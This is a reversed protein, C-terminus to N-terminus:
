ANFGRTAAGTTAIRADPAVVGLLEDFSFPKALYDDAGVDLGRVKDAVTDKATLMLIPTRAGRDRLARCVALGDKQPLMVDLLIADYPNETAWFLGDAGNDCLDFAYQEETLGKKLFAAVKHDDEVILIRMRKSVNM